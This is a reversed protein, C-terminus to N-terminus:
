FEIRQVRDNESDIVHVRGEKDVVLAWPNCLRGPARGPGGWCGLPEGAPTFKQVRQNGYEVVYLYAPTGPSFAVDYPYSLQGNDAGPTGFIRLLKGATSFVQIRHNCADAVYLAGDPGLAMARIRAFQGPESGPEGWTMIFKGDADLKSIRQNDGFEAVYFFGDADQVADSIYSFQGPGSGKDGGITRLLKGDASYIRLCSYHSDSVLLNGDRDISLGSPRGNRYDPTTWTHGLYNGDRDFTQIRATWDVLFLRDERDIAAARPKVLQGGQVGRRGWVLEPESGRDTCGGLVLIGALSVTRWHLGRLFGRVPSSRVGDECVREISSFVGLIVAKASTQWICSEKVNHNACSGARESAAAM